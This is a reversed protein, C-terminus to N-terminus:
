AAHQMCASRCQSALGRVDRLASVVSGAKKDSGRLVVATPSAMCWGAGADPACDSDYLASIQRDGHLDSEALVANEALGGAHV